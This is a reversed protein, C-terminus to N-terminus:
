KQYDSFHNARRTLNLVTRLIPQARRSVWRRARPFIIPKAFREVWGVCQITPV